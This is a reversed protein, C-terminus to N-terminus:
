RHHNALIEVALDAIWNVTAAPVVFANAIISFALTEGDRTKVYGSLSRVNAITGTKAMANGDARSRRMRTALTGDRGAVPLAALFPDRHRPDAYMKSLVTTITEPTVYNYRSLGSGDSLSYGDEPIGWGSFIAAAARRGANTTGRSGAAAGTAKLLTEAYQNQSVKMLVTAIDRLPPSLTTALERRSPAAADLMQPAIDDIDAADGTVSIGRAVLADKLSQAFFLTPNVVAVTQRVAPADLPITGSIEIVPRDIRRQVEITGRIGSPAGEITRAHNIVTLGSGPALAVVAPDGVAAGPTTVLDAANENYQLAGIPAAYAADLYDWSWGPGIGEDDFAQDDGVIRGDISTIGAAKLAAAWEDFVAQNRSQRTSITPDGHGRVLLDGRLVGNDATATTELTTPFRYDWGLREAAAALTLIKLNSAPMMLTGANLAFLVDGRDMSRVHVGWTGRATVPAAFVTTLQAQLDRLSASTIPAPRGPSAAPAAHAGCGITWGLAAGAVWRGLVNM